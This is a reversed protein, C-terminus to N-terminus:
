LLHAAQSLAPLAVAVIIAPVATVALFAYNRQVAQRRRIIRGASITQRTQNAIIRLSPALATTGTLLSANIRNVAMTVEDTNCRVALISFARPLSMGAGVQLLLRRTEYALESSEGETLDRLADEIPLSAALFSALGYFFHVSESRIRRRRGEVRWGLELRVLIFGCPISGIVIAAMLASGTNFVTAITEGLLTVAVAVKLQRRRLWAIDNRRYGAFLMRWRVGELGLLVPEESVLQDGIPGRGYGIFLEWFGRLTLPIFAEALSLPLKLFGLEIKSPPGGQHAGNRSPRFDITAILAALAAGVIAILVATSM